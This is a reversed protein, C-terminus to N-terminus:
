PAPMSSAVRSRTTVASSRTQHLEALQGLEAVAQDVLDLARDDALPLLELEDQEAEQGVAM